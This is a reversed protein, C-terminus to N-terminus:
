AMRKAHHHTQVGVSFPDHAYQMVNDFVAGPPCELAELFFAERWGHQISQTEDLFSGLTANNKFGLRRASSAM